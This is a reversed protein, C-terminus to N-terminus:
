RAVVEAPTGRPGGAESAGSFVLRRVRALLETPSFPKLMYDNAGLELGRIVDAEGGLGTLMVIPVDDLREIARLRELLEFGDMGPVKVDLIALEFSADVAWEYAEEGNLFDMVEFGERVLRHHILTSTVRDDEVLMVRRPRQPESDDASVVVGRGESRARLLSSEAASVIERLDESGEATAVGASFSVDTGANAYEELVNSGALRAMGARLKRKAEAADTRPLLMVLEGRGWRGLMQRGELASAIPEALRAVLRDAAEEGLADLIADFGNLALLAVATPHPKDSQLRLPEYAEVLAARGPVVPGGGDLPTDRPRLHRAVAARLVKPDVPKELFEAAGVALCEARPVAGEKASLVIVPIGATARSERMQILLDRGDRDPLILDLLVLDISHASLLREAEAADEAHHVTYGPGELYALAAAAVTRNDEVLLVTAPEGLETGLLARAEQLLAEAAAALGPGDAEQVRRASAALADAGSTDATASLSRAMRRLSPGIEPDTQLAELAAELGEVHAALARVEQTHFDEM